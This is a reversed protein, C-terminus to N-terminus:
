YRNYYEEEKGKYWASTFLYILGSLDLGVGLKFKNQNNYEAFISFFLSYNGIIKPFAYLQAGVSAYFGNFIRDTAIEHELSWAVRGYFSFYINYYNNIPIVSLELPLINYQTNDNIFNLELLNFGIGFYSKIVWNFHLIDFSIDPNKNIFDYYIKANGINWKFELDQAFINGIVLFVLIIILILRKM